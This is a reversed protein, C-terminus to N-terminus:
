AAESRREEIFEGVRSRRCFGKSINEEAQQGYTGRLGQECNRREMAVVRKLVTHQIQRNDFESAAQRPEYRQGRGNDRGTTGISSWRRSVLLMKPIATPSMACLKGAPHAQPTLLM